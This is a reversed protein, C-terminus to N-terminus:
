FSDIKTSFFNEVANCNVLTKLDVLYQMYTCVAKDKYKFAIAKVKKLFSFLQVLFFIFNLDQSLAREKTLIIKM